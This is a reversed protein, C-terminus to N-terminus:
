AAPHRWIEINTISGSVEDTVLKINIGPNDVLVINANELLDIQKTIVTQEDRYREPIRAGTEARKLDDFRAKLMTVMQEMRKAIVMVQIILEQDNFKKFPGVVAIKNDVPHLFPIFATDKFQNVIERMERHEFKDIEIYGNLGALWGPNIGKNTDQENIEAEIKAMTQKIAEEVKQSLNAPTYIISDFSQINFALKQGSKQIPIIQKNLSTMMGYEYYVNPNPAVVGLRNAVDNLIVFCFKSEIVKGCIKECFIDKGFETEEAAIYPEINFKRLKEKIIGLELSIDESDPCAIFCIKSGSFIRGCHQNRVFCYENVKVDGM